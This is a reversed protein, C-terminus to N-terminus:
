DTYKDYDESGMECRYHKGDLERQTMEVKYRPPEKIWYFFMSSCQECLDWSQGEEEYGTAKVVVRKRPEPIVRGCRDCQDIVTRM